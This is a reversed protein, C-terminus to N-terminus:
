MILDIEGDWMSADNLTFVVTSGSVSVSDYTFNSPSIITYTLPLATPTTYPLPFIFKTGAQWWNVETTTNDYPTYFKYTFTCDSAALTSVATLTYTESTPNVNINASLDNLYNTGYASTYASTNTLAPYLSSLSFTPISNIM